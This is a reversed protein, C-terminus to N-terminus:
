REDALLGRLRELSSATGAVLDGEVGARRAAALTEEYAVVAKQVLVRLRARLEERYAREEEPGLGPPLPASTLQAHFADYLDGVRGGAAVAFGPDGARIARLYADQAALLLQAKRELADALAADDGAEPALKVALFRARRVEGLWYRAKALEAPEVRERGALADQAAVATELSREAADADGDELEVVGRESQARARRAPDLDPRAALADLLARAEAHRGLRYLAEAEMFRAEEADPGGFGEALERFRVRAADWRELARLSVGADWLAAARHRSSPFRDALRGFAAAAREHDGAQLAARGLTWLEEDNKDALDRDEPRLEDAPAAPAPPPGSRVAGGPGACALAAAAALAILLAPRGARARASTPAGTL